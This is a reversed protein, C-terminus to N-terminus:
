REGSGNKNFKDIEEHLFRMMTDKFERFSDNKIKASHYEIIENMAYKYSDGISFSDGSPLINKMIIMDNRNIEAMLKKFTVPHLLKQPVIALYKKMLIELYENITAQWRRYSEPQENRFLTKTFRPISFLKDNLTNINKSYKLNTKIKTSTKQHKSNRNYLEKFPKFENKGDLDNRISFDIKNYPSMGQLLIMEVIEVDVLRM